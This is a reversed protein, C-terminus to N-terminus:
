RNCCPCLPLALSPPLAPQQACPMRPEHVQPEARGEGQERRCPLSRDRGGDIGREPRLCCGGSRAQAVRHDSRRRRREVPGEDSAHAEYRGDADCNDGGHLLHQLGSPDSGDAAVARREAGCARDVRRDYSYAAYRALAREVDAFFGREHPKCLNVSDPPMPGTQAPITGGAVGAVM